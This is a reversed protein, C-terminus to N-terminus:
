LATLDSRTKAETPSAKHLCYVFSVVLVIPVVPWNRGSAQGAVTVFVPLFALLILATRRSDPVDSFTSIAIAIAILALNLDYTQVYPSILLSALVAGSLVWREEWGRLSTVWLMGAIAAVLLWFVWSPVGLFHTLAALSHMRPILSENTMMMMVRYNAALGAPGVLALSLLALVTVAAAAVFVGKWARRIVLILFPIPLLIAKYSLLAVWLGARAPKNKLIDIIFLSYLLMGVFAMQGLILNIYVPLMVSAALILTVTQESKRFLSGCLLYLATVLLVINGTLMTYYAFRFPFYSLPIFLAAVIPPYPFSLWHYELEGTVTQLVQHQANIDYLHQPDSRLQLASAYFMGFDVRMFHRGFDSLAVATLILIVATPAYACIFRSVGAISSFRHIRRTLALSTIGAIFLALGALLKGLAFILYLSVAIALLGVSDSLVRGAMGPVQVSARTKNMM